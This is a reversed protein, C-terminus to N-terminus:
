FHKGTCLPVCRYARHPARSHVSVIEASMRIEQFVPSRWPSLLGHARGRNRRNRRSRKEAVVARRLQRPALRGLVNHAYLKKGDHHVRMEARRVRPVGLGLKSALSAQVANRALVLAKLGPVLQQLVVGNQPKRQVCAWLRVLFNHVVRTFYYIKREKVTLVVHGRVHPLRKLLERRRQAVSQLDRGNIEVRRPVHVPIRDSVLAADHLKRAAVVRGNVKKM